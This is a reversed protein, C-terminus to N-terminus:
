LISRLLQRQIDVNPAALDVTAFRIKHGQIVAAEDVDAGVSPHLLLGQATEWASDGQGQQSQIYSYIQYLYGSRLSEERHWGQTVISTFKTDVITRKGDFRDVIIDTRMSPLLANIGDTREGIQWQLSQGAHVRSGQPGLRVKYFGAVAKEFLRRVWIEERDALPLRTWGTQETPLAMELALRAAAVMRFDQTDNRGLNETGAHLLSPACVLVGRNKLHSAASRCSQTLEASSVLRSVSLLAALALRNRPTDVTLEDFRCAIRGRSLLQRCETTLVDIRGRVRTLEAHRSRYGMTLSQRLREDVAGVLIGAILDPLDDPLDENTGWHTGIERYLESAYLMLLWLNRVPIRGIKLEPM